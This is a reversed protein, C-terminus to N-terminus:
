LGGSMATINHNSDLSIVIDARAPMENMMFTSLREYHQVFREIEAKNMISSNPKQSANTALAISADVAALKEEQLHRWRFVEAMSPANIMILGNILGFWQQYDGALKRNVEARWIGKPDQEEELVNIPEDLEEEKQPLAGVCWGEFLIVDAKQEQIPWDSEPLSDNQAKSFRPLATKRGALISQITAIGLAADHTGPVGRTIFLPHSAAALKKREALSLYFDDISLVVCNLEHQAELLLKLFLCITSKGTGQAGNVGFVLGSDDELRAKAIQKSLPMLYREVLFFYYDPLDEQQILATVADQLAEQNM